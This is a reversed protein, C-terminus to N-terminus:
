LTVEATESRDKGQKSLLKEWGKIWDSISDEKDFFSKFEKTEGQAVNSLSRFTLTYDTKGEQMLKLLAKLHELGEQEPKELGIKQTMNRLIEDNVNKSFSELVKNIEAKSKSDRICMESGM